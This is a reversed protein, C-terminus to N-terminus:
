RPASYIALLPSDVFIRGTDIYESVSELSAHGTLAKILHPPVGCRAAETALGRRLSHGAYRGKLHALKTYKCVIRCVTRTSMRRRVPAWFRTQGVSGIGPFLSSDARRKNEYTHELTRKWALIPECFCFKGDAARPIGVRRGKSYQDTKSRKILVELGEDRETIDDVNLGIIESRRLACSWGIALLAADRYGNMSARCKSIMSTIDSYSLPDAKEPALGIKRALGSVVSRVAETRVPNTVGRLEHFKSLAALSRNVTAMRLNQNSMEAVWLCVTLPDAPMPQLGLRICFEQFREWDAQYATKTRTSLSSGSLDLVREALSEIKSLQEM